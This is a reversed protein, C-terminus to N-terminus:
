YSAFHSIRYNTTTKDSVTILYFTFTIFFRFYDMKLKFMTCVSNYIYIFLSTELLKFLLDGSKILFSFITHNDFSVTPLPSSHYFMTFSDTRSKRDNGLM